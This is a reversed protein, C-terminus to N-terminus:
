LRAQPPPTDISLPHDVWVFLPPLPSGQVASAPAAPTGGVTAACTVCHQCGHDCHIDLSALAHHDDAQSSVAQLTAHAVAEPHAHAGHAAVAPVPLMGLLMVTLVLYATAKKM